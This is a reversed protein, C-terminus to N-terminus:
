VSVIVIAHHLIGFDILKYMNSLKSMDCESVYVREHSVYELTSYKSQYRSFLGFIIIILFIGTLAAGWNM